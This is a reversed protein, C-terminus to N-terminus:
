HIPKGKGNRIKEFELRDDPSPDLVKRERHAYSVLHTKLICVEEAPVSSGAKEKAGLKATIEDEGFTITDFRPDITMSLFHSSAFTFDYEHVIHETDPNQIIM